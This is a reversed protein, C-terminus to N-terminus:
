PLFPGSKKRVYALSILFVLGFFLCIRDEGHSSTGTRFSVGPFTIKKKDALKLGNFKKLM